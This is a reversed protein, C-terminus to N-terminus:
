SLAEAFTTIKAEDITSTYSDLKAAAKILKRSIFGCKEPDFIGGLFAKAAARELLEAPFNDKFYTEAESEQLGSLFLGITKNQLEDAHEAAIKKVAKSIRGATLPSGLIICDYDSFTIKEGCDADHLVAGSLRGAISEAIKKTAGHKTSYIILAKM